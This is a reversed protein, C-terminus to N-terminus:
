ASRRSDTRCRGSHFIDSMCASASCTSSEACRQSALRNAPMASRHGSRTTRPPPSILVPPKGPSRVSSESKRSRTKLPNLSSKRRSCGSFPRLRSSRRMGNRAKAEGVGLLSRNRVLAASIRPQSGKSTSASTLKSPPARNTTSFRSPSRNYGSRNASATRSSAQRSRPPWGDNRCRVTSPLSGISSKGESRRLTACASQSARTLFPAACESNSGIQFSNTRLTQSPSHRSGSM